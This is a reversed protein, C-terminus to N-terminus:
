QTDSTERGENFSSPSSSSSPPTCTKGPCQLPELYTLKRNLTRETVKCIVLPKENATRSLGVPRPSTGCVHPEHMHCKWGGLRYCCTKQLHSIPTHPPHQDPYRMGLRLKLRESCNIDPRIELRTAFGRRHFAIAGARLLMSYSLVMESRTTSSVIFYVVNGLLSITHCINDEKSCPIFWKPAPLVRRHSEDVEEGIQQVQIDRQGSRSLDYVDVGWMERRDVLRHLVLVKADFIDVALTHPYIHITVVDKGWEDWQICSGTRVSHTHRVLLEVPVIFLLNQTTFLAFVRQTPDVLFESYAAFPNERRTFILHRGPPPVPPLDLIQWSRPDEQPLQMDFVLLRPALRPRSSALLWSGELFYINAIHSIEDGIGPDDSSHELVQVPTLDLATRRSPLNSVMKGARWDWVILVESYEGTILSLSEVVIAIRSESIKKDIISHHFGDCELDLELVTQRPVKHPTGDLLSLLHVNICRCLTLDGIGM